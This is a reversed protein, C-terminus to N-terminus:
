RSRQRPPPKPKAKTTPKTTSRPSAPLGGLGAACMKALTHFFRTTTKVGLAKEILAGPNGPRGDVLRWVLFLEGSTAELVDFQERGRPAGGLDVPVPASTFMVCCREDVNAVRDGFSTSRTIAALEDLTRIFVPVEYGLSESLQAEILRTLRARDTIRSNFFVNGSQIYTSVDTLGLDTFLARLREMKVVRGGVNVARLLAVYRTVPM